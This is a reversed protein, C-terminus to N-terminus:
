KGGEVGKREACGATNFGLSQMVEALKRRMQASKGFVAVGQQREGEGGIERVLFLTEM